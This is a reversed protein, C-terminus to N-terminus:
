EKPPKYFWRLFLKKRLIKMFSNIKNTKKTLATFNHVMVNNDDSPAKRSEVDDLLEFIARTLDGQNILDIGM